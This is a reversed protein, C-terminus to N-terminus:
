NRRLIEFGKLYFGEPQYLGVPHDQAQGLRRIIMADAGADLAADATIKQFLADDMLGSCSFTFLRGEKELLQFAQLAIDKYARAGRKLAAQSDVFKPPDLVILDFKEQQRVSKRLYEFADATIFEFITPDIRNLAANKQALNLAPASSDVNIVKRAGGLAAAVGFGGTYAFLNLVKKDKAAMGVISRNDRQDCYFGTKHGHRVDVFFRRNAETFEVLEPPEQGALLGTRLELGERSRISVDSREYVCELGPLLKMLSQAIQERFPEIAAALLQIVATKGYLDVILGPLLDAESAVLRFGATGFELGMARRLQLAHYLRSQLLAEDVAEDQQFSWVRATIQSKPSLGARALWEGKASFVEATAGTECPGEIRAVAGSFIWLHHRLLSKERGPKLYICTM